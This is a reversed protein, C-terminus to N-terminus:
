GWLGKIALAAGECPASNQGCSAPVCQQHAKASTGFGCHTVAIVNERVELNAYQVIRGAVVKQNNLLIATPTSLELSSYREAGASRRM